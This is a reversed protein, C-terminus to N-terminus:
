SLMCYIWAYFLTAIVFHLKCTTKGHLNRALCTALTLHFFRDHTDMYNTFLWHGSEINASGTIVCPDPQTPMCTSRWPGEAASPRIYWAPAQTAATCLSVHNNSQEAVFVTMCSFMVLCLNTSVFQALMRYEIVAVVLLLLSLVFSVIRPNVNVLRNVARYVM